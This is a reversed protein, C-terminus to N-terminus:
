PTLAIDFKNDGAKVEVSLGSSGLDQYKKPIPRASPQPPAAGAPSGLPDPPPPPTVAVKYRDPRCKVTYNGDAAIKESAAHGDETMFLVGGAELPAGGLTVKGTVVASREETQKACGLTAVFMAM